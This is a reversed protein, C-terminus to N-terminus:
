KAATSSLDGLRLEPFAKYPNYNSKLLLLKPVYRLPCTSGLVPLFLRPKLELEALLLYCCLLVCPSFGGKM